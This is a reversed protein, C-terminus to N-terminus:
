LDIYKECDLCYTGCNGTISNEHQCKSKSERVIKKNESEFTKISEPPHELIAKAKRWYEIVESEPMVYAYLGAGPFRSELQLAIIRRWSKVQESSLTEM